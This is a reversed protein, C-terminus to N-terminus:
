YKQARKERCHVQHQQIHGVLFVFSLKCTLIYHSNVNNCEGNGNRYLIFGATNLRNRAITIRQVPLDMISRCCYNQYHVNNAPTLTCTCIFHIGKAVCVCVCVCVCVGKTVLQKGRNERTERVKREENLDSCVFHVLKSIKVAM